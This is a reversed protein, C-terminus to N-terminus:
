PLPLLNVILYAFRGSYYNKKKYKILLFFLIVTPIVLIFKAYFDTGGIDLKYFYWGVLTLYCYGVLPSLVLTYKRLEKTCFLTTLGLGLYVYLCITLVSYYLYAM